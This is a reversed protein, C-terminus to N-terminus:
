YGQHRWDLSHYDCVRKFRNLSFSFNSIGNSYSKEKTGNTFVHLSFNAEYMIVFLAYDECRLWFNRSDIKTNDYYMSEIKNNLKEKKTEDSAHTRSNQEAKM